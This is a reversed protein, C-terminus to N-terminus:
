SIAWYNFYLFHLTLIVLTINLNIFVYFLPKQLGALPLSDAQWHQLCLLHLKLGQTLFNGQLLFRYDAGTNKGPFDWPCLFRSHYLGPSWLSDSIVSCVCVCLVYFLCLSVHVCISINIFWTKEIRNEKWIWSICYLSFKKLATINLGFFQICHM